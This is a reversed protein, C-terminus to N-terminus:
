RFVHFHFSQVIQHSLVFPVRTGSPHLIHKRENRDQWFTRLQWILLFIKYLVFVILVNILSQFISTFEPGGFKSFWYVAVEYLWKVNVWEEGSFTYSFIDEKPVNGNQTIWEGTKIYWWMDPEILKKMGIVWAVITVLIFHVRHLLKENM